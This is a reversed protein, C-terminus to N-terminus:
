GLPLVPFLRGATRPNRATGECAAAIARGDGLAGGFAAIVVAFSGMAPFFWSGATNNAAATAAPSQGMATAVTLLMMLASLAFLKLKIMTKKEQPRSSGSASVGEDASELKM